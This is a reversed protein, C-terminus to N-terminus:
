IGPRRSRLEAWGGTLFPTGGYVFIVTGLVPPIWMAGPFDPIHYGLLEAVMHSFGVVPISLILSVWFRRRFMEGHTGHGAHRDHGGHEASGGLHALHEGHGAHADHADTPPSQTPIGHDHEALEWHPPGHEPHSM